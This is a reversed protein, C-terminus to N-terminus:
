NEALLALLPAFADVHVFHGAGPLTDVRAGAARLRAADADSVYPSRGGRIERFAREPPAAEVAPWLDDQNVRTHLAALARRDIRWVYRAGDPVLNQLLWEVIMPPAAPALAARMEDRSAASDPAALLAALATPSDTRDPGRTPEVPGPAIDLLTVDGIRAPAALCAALAVRGGLSHGILDARGLRLQGMSVLVDRALTALDAEPELPPSAGHGTLDLATVRLDPRAESLRRQLTGLNRAAGLFGHLLVVDRAGEGRTTHALKAM